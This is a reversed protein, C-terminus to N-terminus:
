SGTALAAEIRTRIEESGPEVGSPYGAIFRGDPGILIKHFNWRPTGARGGAHAAWSYFPHAGDGRVPIIAPPILSAIVGSILVCAFLVAIIGLISRLIRRGSHPHDDGGAIAGNTPVDKSEAMSGLERRCVPGSM